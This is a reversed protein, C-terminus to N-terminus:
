KTILYIVWSAAMLNVLAGSAMIGIRRPFWKPDVGGFIVSSVQTPVVFGLWVWFAVQWYTSDFTNAIFHALIFSIVFTMILQIGLLPGMQKQMEKQKAKPLKDFGFMEGWQKPFVVMYWIAGLVFQVATAALVAWMNIDM